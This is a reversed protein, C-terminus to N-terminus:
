SEYRTEVDVAGYEEFLDRVDRPDVSSGSDELVIVFRDDTVGPYPMRAQKGPFLRCLILLAFVSGFGALLITVEFIVPILAPLSNFPKGGINLPWDIALTWTGFWFMGLAGALGALFCVWTIRSRQLGMADDLGHVAYPTYVDVIRYGGERSARTVGLIAEESTFAGVWHRSGTDNM